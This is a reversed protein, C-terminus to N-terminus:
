SATCDAQVDYVLILIAVLYLWDGISWVFEGARALRV